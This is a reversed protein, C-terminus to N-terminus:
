GEEINSGLMHFTLSLQTIFRTRTPGCTKLSDDMGACLAVPFSQCHLFAGSKGSASNRHHLCM